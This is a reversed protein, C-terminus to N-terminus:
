EFSRKGWSGERVTSYFAQDKLFTNKTEASIFRREGKKSKGGM